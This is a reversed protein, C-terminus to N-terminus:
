VACFSIFMIEAMSSSKPIYKIIRQDNKKKTSEKVGAKIKKSGSNSCKMKVVMQLCKEKEKEIFTLV